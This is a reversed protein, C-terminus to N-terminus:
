PQVSFLLQVATPLIQWRSNERASEPDTDAHCRNLKGRFANGTLLRSHFGNRTDTNMLTTRLLISGSAANTTPIKPDRKEDVIKFKANRHWSIKALKWDSHRANGALNASWKFLCL